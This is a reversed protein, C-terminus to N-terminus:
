LIGKKRAYWLPISLKFNGERGVAQPKGRVQSKAIWTDQAGDFVLYAAKTEWKLEGCFEFLEESGM